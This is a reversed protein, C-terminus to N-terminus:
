RTELTKTSWFYKTVLIKKPDFIKQELFDKKFGLMIKSSIEKQM